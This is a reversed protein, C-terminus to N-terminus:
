DRWSFREGWGRRIWRAMLESRGNVGFHAFITKIYQNVTHRSLNLRAAIQKDGDGELLCALTERVRPTLERPSPDAFRALPGGVMAALRDHAERVLARDRASFNRRGKARNLIVGSCVGPKAGPIARFCYLIHDVGFARQVVLHDASRYWDRDAIFEARSLCVGDDAARLGFYVNMSPMYDAKSRFAGLQEEILGFDVFGEQHGWCVVGLDTQKFEGCGAMEGSHGLSSDTLRALQTLWHERWAVADDGLDRCEGVLQFIARLDQVRLRGSKSM